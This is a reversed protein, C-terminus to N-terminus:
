IRGAVDVAFVMRYEKMLNKIFGDSMFLCRLSKYEPTRFGSLLM